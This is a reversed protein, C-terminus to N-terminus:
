IDCRWAANVDDCFVSVLPVCNYKKGYENLLAPNCFRRESISGEVVVCHAGPFIESACREFFTGCMNATLGEGCGRLPPCAGCDLAADCGDDIV